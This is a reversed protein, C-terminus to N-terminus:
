PMTAIITEIASYSGPDPNLGNTAVPVYTFPVKADGNSLTVSLTGGRAPLQNQNADLVRIGVNRNTTLIDDVSTKHSMLVLDITASESGGLCRISLPQTTGTGVMGGAGAKRYDSSFTDPMVVVSGATLQCSAPITIKGSIFVSTLPHGHIQGGYHDETTLFMYGALKNYLTIDRAESSDSIKLHVGAYKFALILSPIPGSAPFTGTTSVNTGNYFVSGDSINVGGTIGPGFVTNSGGEIFHDDTSDFWLEQTPAPCSYTENANGSWFPVIPEQSAKTGNSNAPFTINHSANVSAISSTLYCTAAMANNAETWLLATSFLFLPYKASRM